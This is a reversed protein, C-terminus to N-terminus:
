LSLDQNEEITKNKKNTKNKKSSKNPNLSVSKKSSLTLSHSAKFNEFGKDIGKIARNGDLEKLWYAGTSRTFKHSYYAYTESREDKYLIASELNKIPNRNGEDDRYILREYRNSLEENNFGRIAFEYAFDDQNYYRNYCENYFKKVKGFMLIRLIIILYILLIKIFIKILKMLKMMYIEKM